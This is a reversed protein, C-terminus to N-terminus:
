VPLSFSSTKSTVKVSTCLYLFHQLSHTALNCVHSHFSFSSQFYSQINYLSLIKTQSMNEDCISLDQNLARIDSEVLRVFLLNKGDQQRNPSVIHQQSCIKQSFEEKRGIIFLVFVNALFFSTSFDYLSWLFTSYLCKQQFAM